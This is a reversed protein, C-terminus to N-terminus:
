SLAVSDSEDSLVLAVAAFRGPGPRVIPKAYSKAPDKMSLNIFWAFNLDLVVGGNGRPCGVDDSETSVLAVAEFRGPVPRMM